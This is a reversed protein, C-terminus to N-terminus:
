GSGRARSETPSRSRLRARELEVGARAAFIKVIAIEHPKPHLPQDHILALHGLITGSSDHLPVGLYGEGALTVLDKDQPFLSQVREPYSCEQGGIVHECPTGRLPFTVNESFGDRNWFALTRVHSKTADTCEAVFAHRVRLTEALHRVLLHFFDSATASATETTITRLVDAAAQSDTASRALAGATRRLELQAVVQRSLTRLTEVQEPNLQRPVHDIVCLTGLAHGDSTILPAGAYFRIHPEATVLPNKAFRDDALADPVVLVDSQLVAHACFAVDRPTQATTLGVKAKFWQRNTDILSVLAVPTGCTQAAAMALDDFDQEPRTDLISYRRLAALREPENTPLPANM